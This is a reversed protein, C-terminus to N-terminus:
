HNGLYFKVPNWGFVAVTLKGNQWSFSFIIQIFFERNLIGPFKKVFSSERDGPHEENNLRAQWLGQKKGPRYM